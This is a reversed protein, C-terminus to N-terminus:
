APQAGREHLDVSVEQKPARAQGAATAAGSMTDAVLGYVETWAAQVDRTYASGLGMYLTHLLAAGVTAYHPTQVGYGAHRQGLERLVPLLTPADDLMGVAAGIMQMLRQGQAKLNGKFLPQLTPDLEFLKAYFLEAAQDAMPLVESWSRQVLTITHPNM